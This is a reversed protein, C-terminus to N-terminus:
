VAKIKATIIYYLNITIIIQFSLYVYTFFILIKQFSQIALLISVSLEEFNWNFNYNEGFKRISDAM